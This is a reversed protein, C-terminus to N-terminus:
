FEVGTFFYINSASWEANNNFQALNNEKIYDYYHQYYRYAFGAKWKVHNNFLIGLSLSTTYVMKKDGGIPSYTAGLEHFGVGERFSIFYRKLKLEPKTDLMSGQLPKKKDARLWQASLGFLASNLGFNPIQTHGNSHHSYGGVLKLNFDNKQYITKYLMAQFGWTFPSGNSLNEKNTISDYHTTFYTVGLALKLYLPKTQNFM